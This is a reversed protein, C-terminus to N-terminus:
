TEQDATTPTTNSRPQWFDAASSTCTYKSNPQHIFPVVHVVSHKPLGAGAPDTHGALVETVRSVVVAVGQQGTSEPFTQDGM